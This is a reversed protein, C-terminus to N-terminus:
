TSSNVRVSGDCGIFAANSSDRGPSRLWWWSIKGNKDMATRMESYQDLFGWKYIGHPYAGNPPCQLDMRETPSFGRRLMGSDGLYKVAEHLNLLFVYDLTSRGGEIDNWM